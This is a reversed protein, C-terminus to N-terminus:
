NMYRELGDPPQTNNVYKSEAFRRRVSDILNDSWGAMKAQLKDKQPVKKGGRGPQLANHFDILLLMYKLAKMKPVDESKTVWHLRHAVFRSGCKVNEGAEVADQWDKVALARMEGSPVLTSLPYAEEVSQAQLNPRPIPKSALIENQLDQKEPMAASADKVSDMVASEVADLNGAVKEKDAGSTIANEYRSRLAKQAKKTGFALGLDERQQAFTRAADDAAVEQTESRLTTRLTLPHAPLVQVSSTAPDYIAVYHSQTGSVEQTAQYDLKPHSQSHLLLHHTSPTPTSPANKASSPKAFTKFSNKPITLGPSSASVRILVNFLFHM